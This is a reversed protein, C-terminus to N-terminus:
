KQFFGACANSDSCDGCRCDCGLQRGDFPAQGRAEGFAEVGDEAAGFDHGFAYGRSRAAFELDLHERGTFDNRAGAHHIGDLIAGDLAAM